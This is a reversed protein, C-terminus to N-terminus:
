RRHSHMLESDDPADECTSEEEDDMEDEYEAIVTVNDIVGACTSPRPRKAPKALRKRAAQSYPSHVINSPFQDGDEEHRRHQDHHRDLLM